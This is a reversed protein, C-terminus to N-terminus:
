RIKTAIYDVAAQMDVAGTRDQSSGAPVTNAGPPQAVAVRTKAYAGSEPHIVRVWTEGEFGTGAYADGAGYAGVKRGRERSILVLDECEALNTALKDAFAAAFPNDPTIMESDHTILRSDEFYLIFPANIAEFESQGTRNSKSLTTWGQAFELMANVRAAEAKASEYAPDIAAQRALPRPGNPTPSPETGNTGTCGGVISGVLALGMLIAV